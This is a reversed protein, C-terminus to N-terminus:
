AQNAPGSDVPKKVDYESRTAKLMVLPLTKISVTGIDTMSDVLCSIQEFCPM